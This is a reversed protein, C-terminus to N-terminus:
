VTSDTCHLAPTCHLHAHTCEGTGYRRCLLRFALESGGVMPALITRHPPLPAKTDRDTDTDTDRDGEKGEKRRQKKKKPKMEQSSCLRGSSGCSSSNSPPSTQNEEAAKRKKKEKKEKKDKKEKKEQATRRSVVRFSKHLLRTERVEGGAFRLSYKFHSGHKVKASPAVAVVEARVFAPKTHASSTSTSSETDWLIDVCDGVTVETQTDTDGRKLASPSHM